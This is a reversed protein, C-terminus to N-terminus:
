DHSFGTLDIQTFRADIVNEHLNNAMCLVSQIVKITFLTETIRIELQIVNEIILLAVKIKTLTIFVGRQLM